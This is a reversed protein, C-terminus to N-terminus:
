EHYILHYNAFRLDDNEQLFVKEETELRKENIFTGNTSGMDMLFCRNAELSIQAHQKSIEPYALVCQCSNQRGIVFPIENIFYQNGKEDILYGYQSILPLIQTKSDDSDLMMTQEALSPENYTAYQEHVAFAKFFEDEEKKRQKFLFRFRSKPTKEELFHLVLLLRFPRQKCTMYLQSLWADDGQFNIHEFIENLFMAIEKESGHHSIPMRLLQLRGSEQHIFVDNVSLLCYDPMAEDIATAITQIWLTLVKQSIPQFNMYQKLSMHNGCDFLLCTEDKPHVFCTLYKEDHLYLIRKQSNLREKEKLVIEIYDEQQNKIQWRKQMASDRGNM